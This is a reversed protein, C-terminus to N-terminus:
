SNIVYENLMNAHTQLFALVNEYDSIKYSGKHQRTQSEFHYCVANGVFYNKRHHTLCALNLEVDEFCETYTPNFGGIEEFRQREILLFAATSGVINKEVGGTYFNYYSKLGKHTIILQKNKDIILQIGAHQIENNAFHLRCGITGCLKKNQLYVQVMRTVADNILEIDNNCFLLLETNTDLHEFVVANNIRSFHYYDFQVVRINMTTIDVFEDIEALEKQSSGTDAIIIEYNPYRSKESLSNICHFLLLNNSKNLIIISVKPYTTLKIKKDEFLIKGKIAYPLHNQYHAIFQKRNTEYAENTAGYSKHIMRVNFIIGINVGALHNNLCFDTDYFHFGQFAENFKQQLKKRDVAIFVGDVCVAPIIKDKFDGSYKSVWKKGQDQHKITGIMKSTDQWWVGSEPLNTTGAIGLIGFESRGFHEIIRQGWGKNEFIVDDHTFVIIDHRAQSLGQNYLTSLSKQDKNIYTLIEVNKRGCSQQLHHIFKQEKHRTSYVISLSM